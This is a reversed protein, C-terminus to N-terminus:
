GGPEDTLSNGVFQAIQAVNFFSGAAPRGLTRQLQLDYSGLLEAVRVDTEALAAMRRRSREIQSALDDSAAPEALGHERWVDTVSRDFADLLEAIAFEADQLDDPAPHAGPGLAKVVFEELIAAPQRKCKGYALERFRASISGAEGNKESTLLRRLEEIQPSAVDDCESIQRM